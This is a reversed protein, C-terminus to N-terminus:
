SGGPNGQSNWLGCSLIVTLNVRVRGLMDGEVTEVVGGSRDDRLSASQDATRAHLGSSSHGSTTIVGDKIIATKRSRLVMIPKRLSKKTMNSKGAGYTPWSREGEVDSRDTTEDDEEEEEEVEDVLLRIWRKNRKLLLKLATKIEEETMNEFDEARFPFFRNDNGNAMGAGGTDTTGPTGAGPQQDGDDDDDDEDDRLRHRNLYKWLFTGLVLTNAVAVSKLGMLIKLPVIFAQLLLVPLTLVALGAILYKLLHIISSGIGSWSHDSISISQVAPPPEPKCHKQASQPPQVIEGYGPFLNVRMKPGRQRVGGGRGQHRRQRPPEDDYPIFNDDEEPVYDELEVDSEEANNAPGYLKPTRVQRVVGEKTVEYKGGTRKQIFQQQKKIFKERTGVVVPVPVQNPDIMSVYIPLSESKETASALNISQINLWGGPYVTKLKELLAMGNEVAHEVPMWHAAFKIETSNGKNGQRYTQLHLAHEIVDKIKAENDLKVPTPNKCRKAFQSGLFAFVHGDIRADVLFREFRQALKRKMEFSNYDRKLQQFPIIQVKYGIDLENLKDEWEQLTPQYDIARGRRLDKVILCIDDDKRLMPHPLAVRSNRSPCRPVKVSVIQLAYKLDEGFLKNGKEEGKKRFVEYIRQFSQKSILEDPVLAMTRKTAKKPVKGGVKQDEKKMAKVLAAASKKAQKAENNEPKPQKPDNNEPKPQEDEKKEEALVPAGKALKKQKKTAKVIPATGNEKKAPPLNEQENKKEAASKKQKVQKKPELKMSFVRKEPLKEAVAEAGNSAAVKAASLKVTEKAKKPKQIDTNTKKILMLGEKVPKDKKAAKVKM